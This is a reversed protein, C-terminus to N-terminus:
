KAQKKAPKTPEAKKVEKTTNARLMEIRLDNAMKERAVAAKLDADYKKSELEARVRLQVEPPILDDSTAAEQQAKVQKLQADVMDRQADAQIKQIEAQQRQMDMQQQMQAQESNSEAAIAELVQSKNPIRSTQILVSDPIAVGLEQRMASAQEFTSDEMSDREPQNTIIIDYEGLTLDNVIEGEPTAQNVTMEEAERRMPDTTIYILREETYYSQVIGLLNKALFHDTRNLNDLVLAFNASASMQNAKLAKASVDERSFGTAADPVGSVTKIHEEAKYTIRELGTPIQNPQIKMVDAVDNVELILGSQAGREELEAADMNVLSGAKVVWGSNASTNVVHLEQSSVKNLLEQPGLLNEVVGITKGRRFYPFFPVVTFCKYPSWKDHLVENGAVVTWRVRPGFREIIQYDPNNQLFFTIQEPEWEEPVPRFEGTGVHVFQEYKTLKKWQREVVRVCRLMPKTAEDMYFTAGHGQNGPEGFQDRDWDSTDYDYPSIISTQTELKNRWKKGYILEIEDLSLWKTIIVDNWEEPNYSHADSDILVNKPNLVSIKADGQLSDSFDLRVDFFGRGTILGDLFVDTRQWPLMNNDAIQMFVKTLAEATEPTAGNRRPRFAVETRNYIQEGTVNALTSLIKNITLAPRRQSQLLEIDSKEWQMGAFFDECKKAKKVYDLHGHDRLYQYRWWTQLALDRAM